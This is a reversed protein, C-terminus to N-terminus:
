WNQIRLYNIILMLRHMNYIYMIYVDYIYMYLRVYTRVYMCVYMYVYMNMGKAM